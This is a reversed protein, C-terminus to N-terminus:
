LTHQRAAVMNDQTGSTRRKPKIGRVTRTFGWPRESVNKTKSTHRKAGATQIGKGADRLLFGYPNNDFLRFVYEFLQPEEDLADKKQTVVVKEVVRTKQRRKGSEMEQWRKQMM